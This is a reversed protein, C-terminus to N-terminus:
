SIGKTREHRVEKRYHDVNVHSPHKKGTIIKRYARQKEYARARKSRQSRTM